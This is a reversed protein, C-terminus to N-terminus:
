RAGEQEGLARQRAEAVSLFAIPRVDAGAFNETLREAYRNADAVRAFAKLRQDRWCVIAIKGAARKVWIGGNKERDRRPFARQSM